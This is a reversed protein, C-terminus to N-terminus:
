LRNLPQEGAYDGLMTAMIMCTSVLAVIPLVKVMQKARRAKNRLRKRVNAGTTSPPSPPIRVWPLSLGVGANWALVIPWETVEGCHYLGAM